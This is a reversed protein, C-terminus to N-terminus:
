RPAPRVRRVKDEPVSFVRRAPRGRSACSRRAPTVVQGPEAEVATVVGSVDAV